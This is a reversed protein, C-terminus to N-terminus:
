RMEGRDIQNKPIIVTVETRCDMQSKFAVEAGAVQKLRFIINRLGHSALEENELISVDFGPGDDTVRVMYADETACSSLWVNGGEINKTAGHKIANEVLPEITLPPVKFDVAQIDYHVNLRSQFRLKEIATYNKIHNLEQEFPIPVSSTISSMNARLYQSFNHIADRAERPNKTCLVQIAVLANYLFHPKIQSLMLSTQSEELQLRLNAAELVEKHRDMIKHIFIYDQTVIFALFFSPPTMSLNLVVLGSRYLSGTILSGILFMLCLSIPLIGEAGKMMSRYLFVLMPIFPLLSALSFFFEEKTLGREMCLSICVLIVVEYALFSVIKRRSVKLVMMGTVYFFFVFPLLLTLVKLINSFIFYNRFPLFIQILGYFEDKIIVRAFMMLNFVFLMFSQVGHFSGNLIVALIVLSILMVGFYVSALMYRFSSSLYEQGNEALVPTLVLGDLNEGTVEITLDFDPENPLNSCSYVTAYTWAATGPGIDRRVDDARRVGRSTALSGNFYVRYGSQFNPIYSVLHVTAPCNKVHIRYSAIGSKPLKKGKVSYNRWMEPVRFLGDSVPDPDGDSVIFRGWYFEWEGDLYIAYNRDPEWGSLDLVGNEICPDGLLRDHFHSYVLPGATMFIVLLFVMLFCIRDWRFGGRKKDM